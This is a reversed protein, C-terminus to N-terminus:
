ISKEYKNKRMMVFRTIHESFKQKDIIPLSISIYQTDINYLNKKQIKNLENFIKDIDISDGHAIFIPVCIKKISSIEIFDKMSITTDIVEKFKEGFSGMKDNFLRNSLILLYEDDIQSEYNKLSENILKVGNEISKSVKSEGFLILNKTPSYFITDIGFISMNRNTIMNLKPIVCDAEFYDFLLNSFIYEGIKGIKDLRIKKTENVEKIEYENDIVQSLEEGIGIPYNIDNEKDIFINLKKYLTCYNMKNPIFEVSSNNEAFRLLRSEDFFYEFLREYFLKENNIDIHIFEKMEECSYVKFDDFFSEIIKM